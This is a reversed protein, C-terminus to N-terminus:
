DGQDPMQDGVVPFGKYALDLAPASQAFKDLPQKTKIAAAFKFSLPDVLYALYADRIEDVLPTNSPTIVVFYSDRYNRVQAQNPEGLLDLYIQFRRGEVGSPNRLYGNAEFLANIVQDQYEAIAAVYAGASARWLEALNAEKYFRAFLESFGRLPEVDAPLEGAPLEFKPADGALM